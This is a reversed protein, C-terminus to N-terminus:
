DLVRLKCRRHPFLLNAIIIKLDVFFKPLVSKGGSSKSWIGLTVLQRTRKKGRQRVKRWRRKWKLKGKSEVRTSKLM